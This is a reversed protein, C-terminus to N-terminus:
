ARLATNPKAVDSNPWNPRMLATRLLPLGPTVRQASEASDPIGDM